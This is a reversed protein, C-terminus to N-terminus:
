KKREDFIFCGKQTLKVYRAEFIPKGNETTFHKQKYPNYSVRTWKLTPCKTVRNGEIGAHVNKRREKIVRERGAKSVKLKCNSLYVTSSRDVVLGTSKSRVSWVVGKRNLNRYVFVKM